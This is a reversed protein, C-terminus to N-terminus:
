SGPRIAEAENWLVGGQLCPFDSVERSGRNINMYSFNRGSQFDEPLSNFFPNTTMRFSTFYRSIILIVLKKAESLNVL